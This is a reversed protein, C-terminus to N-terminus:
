LRFMMGGQVLFTSQAAAGAYAFDGFIPDLEALAGVKLWPAAHYWAGVGVRMMANVSHDSPTTVTVAAPNRSALHASVYAVGFGVDAFVSFRAGLPVEFRAAPVLKLVDAELSMFGVADTLRSYGVSVLASLSVRPGLAALPLAGDLRYSVGSVNDAEYGVFGGLELDTRPADRAPARRPALRSPLVGSVPVIRAEARAGRPAGAGTGRARLRKKRPVKAKRPAPGAATAAGAEAGSGTGSGATVAPTASAVAPAVLAAALLARLRM